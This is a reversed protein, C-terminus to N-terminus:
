KVYGLCARHHYLLDQTLSGQHVCIILHYLTDNAFALHPSAFGLCQAKWRGRQMRLVRSEQGTEGM